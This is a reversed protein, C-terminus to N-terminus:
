VKRPDRIEGHIASATVTWPSALYVQAQPSGMRGPYNRNTSSICVEDGALTGMHGGFCPGCTSSTFTAGADMFIEILGEKLAQRYINQSAPTIQFRVGRAVKEGKLLGAAIRLDEIRANTCSGLFAVDIKTGEVEEVPKLNAPNSPCAVQPGMGDVDITFTKAFAADEDSRIERFPRGAHALYEKTVQDAEIMGVKAGMETTMNCLVFRENMPFAKVTPGTFEVAAYRAGDDGTTGIVKLIVDKAGTRESLRGHIDVRLTEPVRLWLRGTAMVAATDTAGIGAAFAGVAGVMNTHSDSGIVLDWPQAYGREAILQHVIGHDGVDHFRQIGQTRCFERITQHMKAIEPTPPPVWHDLTVVIKSPDWVKLTGIENFPLLAMALMEHMYLLDVSGDVIQGPHVVESRSARALIKETITHGAM